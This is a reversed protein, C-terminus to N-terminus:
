KTCQSALHDDGGCLFCLKRGFRAISFMVNHCQICLPPCACKKPKNMAGGYPDSEAVVRKRSDGKGKGKGKRKGKGMSKPSSWPRFLLSHSVHCGRLPLLSTGQLGATHSVVLATFVELCRSSNRKPAVCYSRACSRPRIMSMIPRALNVPKMRGHSGACLLHVSVLSISGEAFRQEQGPWSTTCLASLRREVKPRRRTPLRCSRGYLLM